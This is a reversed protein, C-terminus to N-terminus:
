SSMVGLVFIFCFHFAFSALAPSSRGRGFPQNPVIGAQSRRGAFSFVSAVCLMSSPVAPLSRFLSFHFSIYSHFRQIGPISARPVSNSPSDFCFCPVCLFGRCLCFLCLSAISQRSVVTFGLGSVWVLSLVPALLLVSGPLSIADLGSSIAFFSVAIPTHWYFATITPVYSAKRM